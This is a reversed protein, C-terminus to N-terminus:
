EKKKNEEASSNERGGESKQGFFDSFASKVEKFTNKALSEVKDFTEKNEERIKKFEENVQDRSKKLEKIRADIEKKVDGKSINSQELLEDIKASLERIIKKTKSEQDSM